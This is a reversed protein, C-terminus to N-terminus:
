MFLYKMFLHKKSKDKLQWIYKMLETENGRDLFSKTHNYFRSEYKWEYTGYYLKFNNETTIKAGCVMYKKLCYREFPCCEKNKCNCSRKENTEASLIKVNHQPIISYMNKMCCYSLKLTNKNFTKNLKQM